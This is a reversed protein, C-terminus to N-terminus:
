RKLGAVKAIAEDAADIVTDVMATGLGPLVAAAVQTVTQLDGVKAAADNAIQQLDGQVRTVPNVPEPEPAPDFVGGVRQRKTKAGATGAAATGTLIGAVAIIAAIWKSVGGEALAAGIAPGALTFVAAAKYRYERIQARQAENM